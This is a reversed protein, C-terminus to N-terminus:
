LKNGHIDYPDYIRNYNPITGKKLQDHVYEAEIEEAKVADKHRKLKRKTNNRKSGIPDPHNISSYFGGSGLMGGHFKQSREIQTNVQEYKGDIVEYGGPMMIPDTSLGKQIVRQRAQAGMIMDGGPLQGLGLSRKDASVELHHKKIFPKYARKHGHVNPVKTERFKSGKKSGKPTSGVRFRKQSAPTIKKM